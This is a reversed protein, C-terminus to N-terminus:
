LNSAVAAFHEDWKRRYSYRRPFYILSFFSFYCPLEYILLNIRVVRIIELFGPFVPM